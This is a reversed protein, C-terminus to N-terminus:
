LLLQLDIIEYEVDIIIEKEMEKGVKILRKIELEEDWKNIIKCLMILFIASIIDVMM